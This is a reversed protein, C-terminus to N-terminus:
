HEHQPFAKDLAHIALANQNEAILFQQGKYDIVYAKTKQHLFLTEIIKGQPSSNTRSKTKKALIILTIFLILLVFGYSLWHPHIAPEKKFLIPEGAYSLHTIAYCVLLTIARKM